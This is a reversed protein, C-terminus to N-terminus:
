AQTADSAGAAGPLPSRPQELLPVPEACGVAGAQPLPLEGGSDAGKEEPGKKEKWM